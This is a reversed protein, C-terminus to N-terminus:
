GDPHQDEHERAQRVARRRHVAVYAGAFVCAPLPALYRLHPAVAEVLVSGLTILALTVVVGVVLTSTRVNGKEDVVGLM